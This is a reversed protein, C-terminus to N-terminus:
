FRNTGLHARPDRWSSAGGTRAGVKRERDPDFLRERFDLIDARRLDGIPIECVPDGLIYMEIRRRQDKVYTSSISKGETRLRRVHPCEDWVFFPRLYEGLTVRGPREIKPLIENEVYEAAKRKLSEGTSHGTKEDALRYYWVYGSKKARKFLIFKRRYATNM